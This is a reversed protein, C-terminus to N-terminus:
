LSLYSSKHEVSFGHHHAGTVGASPSAPVPSRPNEQDVLRASVALEPNWPHDTKFLLTLRTVHSEAPLPAQQGEWLGSHLGQSGTSLVLHM